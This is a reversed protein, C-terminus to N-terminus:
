KTIKIDTKNGMKIESIKVRRQGLKRRIGM